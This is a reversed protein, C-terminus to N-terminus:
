FRYQASVGLLDAHGTFEGNLHSGSSSTTAVKPDDIQVRMYAADVSLNPTANWTLGLTYVTRNNDPLRPTRTDDHTPTEDYGVGARFTLADSMDWEGGISYFWSDKWEFAESGVVAGNDRYIDVSQLSEWGTLQADGMLRFGPAVNWLVSVTDTSPTDFSAWISGDDYADVHLVDFTAAVSAPKTFTADGTLTHHVETRHAYGFTLNDTAKVQAGFVFGIDTDAGSVEIAGDQAQPHFPYLPNFCNMPDAAACLATGFDIAKSLTVDARQVIVGAGVSIRDTFAVAASLTLDVVKVDSKIADYRGMWTPDYETKLGFPASISAGLTVGELAGHLPFVAAMAPVPTADGPDGGNGGSLPGAPAGLATTGSGEFDATLDIVTVDAQVTTQKLNTMAAPNNLVVSADGWAVTTGANARGLNKVSNERIQFGSADAQGAALVGFVGLALASLTLRSATQM